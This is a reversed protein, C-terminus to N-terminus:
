YDGESLVGGLNRTGPGLELEVQKAAKRSDPTMLHQYVKYDCDDSLFWTHADCFTVVVGGPHNSSVNGPRPLNDGPVPNDAAFSTIKMQDLQNKDSAPMWIFGLKLEAPIGGSTQNDTWNSQTLHESLMLTQATGDQIDSASMKVQYNLPTRRINPPLREADFQHHFVGNYPQDPRQPNARDSELDLRGCNAVYALPTAKGGTQMPANSPCVLQKLFVAGDPNGDNDSDVGETGDRWTKWLDARGLDSFIVTVWTLPMRRQGFSNLYGPFRDKSTEYGLVAKGLETQHNTCEARRAAERAAQIAPILLGVLVGIIVVVVLLEVLTFGGRNHHSM